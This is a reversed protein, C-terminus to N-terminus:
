SGRVTARALAARYAAVVRRRTTALSGATDITRTARPGLRERIAGQSAIRAEADAPASGREILRARQDVRPCTVLWVEDCLDALGGEVLKIAEVIVATAGGREARELAAVIQPRVAPHIIAELRALASADRFVIGALAARDLDGERDRVADGFAEIVAAQTPSGAATVARAVDDADVVVAGRAELFRAVTSKGCGIPGTIGIRVTM